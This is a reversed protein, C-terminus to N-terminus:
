DLPCWDILAFEEDVGTLCARVPMGDAPPEQSRWNGYMVCEPAEDLRVRVVVYPEAAGALFPQHSVIWSEVRGVPTIPEWRWGRTRCRHCYARAPFRVTACSDCRQLVFEGRAVREWWQSSDRDTVPRM